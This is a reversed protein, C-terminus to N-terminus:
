QHAGSGFYFLYFGFVRLVFCFFVYLMLHLCFLSGGVFKISTQTNWHNLSLGIDSGHTGIFLEHCTFPWKEVQFMPVLCANDCVVHGM